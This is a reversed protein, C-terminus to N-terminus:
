RLVLKRFLPLRNKILLFSFFGPPTPSQWFQTLFGSFYRVEPESMLLIGALGKASMLKHLRKLRAEFEGVPFGRVPSNLM